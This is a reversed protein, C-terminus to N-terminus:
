LSHSMQTRRYKELMSAMQDKIALKQKKLNELGFDDIPTAGNNAMRVREKLEVHKEYLRKFNMDESLLVNMLDQDFEFM